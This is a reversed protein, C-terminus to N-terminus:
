QAGGILKATEDDAWAVDEPAPFNTAAYPGFHLRAAADYARAAEEPTPFCGLYLLRSKGNPKKEGAGIAAGYKGSKKILYVGKFKGAKRNKSRQVNRSNEQPTALRLNGRQNNLPNGDIHDVLQGPQANAVARHLFVKSKKGSRGPTIRISRRVYGRKDLQWAYMTVWHEDEASILTTAGRSILVEVTGPRTDNAPETSLVPLQEAASM